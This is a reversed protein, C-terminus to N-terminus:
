NNQNKYIDLIKEAKKLVWVSNITSSMFMVLKGIKGRIDNIIGQLRIEWYPIKRPIRKKSTPNMINYLLLNEQLM